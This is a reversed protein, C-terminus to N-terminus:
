GSAPGQGALFRGRPPRDPKALEYVPKGQSEFYIRALLESLLGIMLLQIGVIVLLVAFVLLPRQGINEHLVLKLWTLYLCLAGGAGGFLMGWGGFVRMPKTSYEILFKVTILDLVVRTTRGIGYKSNGATRPRHNVPIEAVRAGRWTCLAPLFRHMEGYLRFSRLVDRDYAKLSCGFDHLKLGTNHSIIWNAIRSPLTRSVFDDKRHARWGSVVDYGEAMKALLAPIDAPDNQLDADITIIVEGRAADIGASLAATQGFNRRLRLPRVAPNAAAACAIEAATGDSSGDDVLILEWDSPYEALARAVEDVLRAVNGAENYVPAVVSICPAFGALKPAEPM